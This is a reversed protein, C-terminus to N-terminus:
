AITWDVVKVPAETVGEAQMARWRQHGGVIHGTRKNMVIDQLLGFEKLSVTLGDMAEKSIRRPNYPAPKLDALRMVRVEPKAIADIPSTPHPSQKGRPQAPAPGKKANPM